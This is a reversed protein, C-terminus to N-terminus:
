SYKKKIFHAVRRTEEIDVDLNLIKGEIKKVKREIMDMNSKICDEVSSVMMELSMFIEKKRLM